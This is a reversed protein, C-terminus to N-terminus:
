PVGTRPAPPAQDASGDRAPETSEGEPREALFAELRTAANDRLNMYFLAYDYAHWNGDEHNSGFGWGSVPEIRLVGADCRAGTAEPHIPGPGHMMALGVAGLNASAPAPVEDHRWSLPNVCVSPGDSREEPNLDITPDAGEALTRWTALCGTQEPRDCIPVTPEGREYPGSWVQTGPIYAAVFRDRLAGELFFESLLRQVMRSGQSHGALILPRGDSWHELYYEFARRVDSYALALGQPRVDPHDFGSLTMQRYRPAYIKASGNFASAQGALTADTIMETLFGGIPANWHYRWFYSTPHVYFVDAVAEDQLNELDSGRPVSHARTSKWPLAAWAREDGYDPASPPSKEEFPTGPTTIWRSTAACGSGTLVM